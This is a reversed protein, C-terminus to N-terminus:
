LDARCYNDFADFCTRFRAFAQRFLPPRFGMNRQKAHVKQNPIGFLLQNLLGKSYCLMFLLWFLPILLDMLFMLGLFGMEVEKRQESLRLMDIAFFCPNNTKPKASQKKGSFLKYNLCLLFLCHFFFQLFM